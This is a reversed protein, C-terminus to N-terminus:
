GTSTIERIKKCPIQYRGAPTYKVTFIMGEGYFDFNLKQSNSSCLFPRGVWDPPTPIEYRGTRNPLYPVYEGAWYQSLVRLYQPLVWSYQALVQLIHEGALAINALVTFISTHKLAIKIIKLAQPLDNSQFQSVSFIKM